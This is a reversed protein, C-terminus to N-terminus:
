TKASRKGSTPTRMTRTSGAGSSSRSSAGRTSRRSGAAGQLAEVNIHSMALQTLRHDTEGEENLTQQLWDAAEKHGMLQAYTRATGYAAIEYHEVKQATALLAADLVDPAADESLLEDGEKILGEMGVCKKRGPKEGLNDFVQQLRDVQRKSIELHEQFARQLDPSSARKAMKPLAKIVQNEASYIDKLQDVFLAHLSNLKM